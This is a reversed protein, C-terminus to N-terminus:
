SLSIGFYVVNMVTTRHISISFDTSISLIYVVTIILDCLYELLGAM